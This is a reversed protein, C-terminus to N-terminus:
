LLKEQNKSLFKGPNQNLNIQRPRISSDNTLRLSQSKGGNQDIFTSNSYGSHIYQDKNQTKTAIDKVHSKALFINTQREM